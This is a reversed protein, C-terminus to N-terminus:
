FSKEKFDDNSVVINCDYLTHMNYNFMIYIMIFM